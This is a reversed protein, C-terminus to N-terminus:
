RKAAWINDVMNPYKRGARKARAKAAAKDAPSLKKHKKVPNPKDWVDTERVTAPLQDDDPTWNASRVPLKKRAAIEDPTLTKMPSNKPGQADSWQQPTMGKADSDTQYNLYRIERDHNTNGNYFMDEISGLKLDPRPDTPYRKLVEKKVAQTAQTPAKMNTVGAKTTDAAKAAGGSLAMAGALAAAAATSKWGEEMSEDYDKGQGGEDQYGAKYAAIEAPDTLQVMKRTGDTQDVWKHPKFQRGYWADAGGCDYPSGHSKDHTENVDAIHKINTTTYTAAESEGDVRVKVRGTKNVDSSVAVIKGPGQPTQVRDGVEYTNKFTASEKLAAAYTDPTKKHTSM